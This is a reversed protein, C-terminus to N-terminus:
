RGRQTLEALLELGLMDRAEAPGATVTAVHAGAGATGGASLRGALEEIATAGTQPAVIVLAGDGLECLVDGSRLHPRLAKHLGRRAAPDGPRVLAVSLPAEGRRAADLHEDLVAVTAEMGRPGGRRRRRLVIAAGLALVLLAALAIAWAPVPNSKPAPPGGFDEQAQAARHGFVVMRDLRVTRNGYHLVAQVRYRSGERPQERRAPVPYEIATGAVFTGPAVRGSAVVRHGRTVRVAGHVQRLLVNGPNRAAVLFTVGAPRRDVRAGTLQLSPHRPGPVRVQVGVVFRQVSSVGLGSRGSQARQGRAQISIGSLYDGARAGRPPAVTVRVSRRERPRLRIVRRDVSTWAGPGTAARGRLDYAYGLNAATVARVSGIDVSVTRRTRNTIRILGAAVPRGRRVSIDFYGVPRLASGSRQAVDVALGRGTVAGAPAAAVALPFVTLLAVLLKRM